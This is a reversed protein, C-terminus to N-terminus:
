TTAPALRIGAPSRCSGTAGATPIRCRPMRSMSREGHPESRDKDLEVDINREAWNIAEHVDHVDSLDFTLEAWGVDEPAIGSGEPPLQQQWFVFPNDWTPMIAASEEQPAPGLRVNM